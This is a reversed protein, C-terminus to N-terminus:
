RSGSIGRVHKGEQGIGKLEHVLREWMLVLMVEMFHRGDWSLSCAVM